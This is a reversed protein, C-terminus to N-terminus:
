ERQLAEYIKDQIRTRIELSFLKSNTRSPTVRNSLFIYIIQNDPDNWFCTGTFGTHGYVSAPALEGCPSSRLNKPDPKDFGLGRRSTPSKSDTFLRCVSKSLYREGGYEGSNLFLQLEKALDNANSFMGANGSVGGKFAAAEDHVYGRLLQKRLFRDHESPVILTSDVRERPNYGATSMGLRKFFHEEMLQNLPQKYENEVMMQLLIFNICSYRYKGTTQLKSDVILQKITDQFAESVFLGDAIKRTFGTKQVTSVAEPYFKYNTRAYTRADVQAPHAADKRSSFFSGTYSDKDIASMHFSISPVIGSQHYLIDAIKINKKNSDKLETVFDAIPQNLTFRKDEYAKMVAPLTGTVKSVSALDYISQETVKELESFDFHGFCQNYVVIGDKAILIQCGPYAKEELGEQAIITISDLIASSLGVEEPMHYGLRTKQTLIGSGSFYLDPISVPLKGKCAIGGFIAQAAFEQALPTTEYGMILADADAISQKYNGCYYPSTFFAHIFTKEKALKRLEQREPIRVTHVGCIIVDYNALEKYVSAIDSEKMNRVISYGDVQTYKSLTEIFPSKKNEGISLAAVRKKDLQKLPLLQDNNKLLTISEENLKSALWAAHPTNLRSSLEKIDIPTHRNLGTIYKYSLVRKCKEDIDKLSVTGNKVATRLADIERAKPATIILMDNGANLALVYSSENAKTAGGGMALADTFRLGNFGYEHHLLDTVIKKSYTSSQRKTNDLSPVYLHGTMVGAYGAEIYERFPFLEVSDLRARNHGLIPLSAHSDDKTDGHGPFHKAVSIVNNEELGKAYALGKEAVMNPNEGFSRLGIVPNHENSNVDLSPAFNIQIGMENCQRAVEKGYAEVLQNNEIAGLMMNKPFRTTNSLRMSLGWEGDLAIFAPVKSLRQVQNTVEAQAATTGRHFLVNGIKYENIYRRILQMNQNDTKPNAIVMLLQGIKEDTTLTQMVSDVWHNMHTQDAQKYMEPTIQGSLMTTIGVLIYIM